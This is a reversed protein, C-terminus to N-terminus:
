RRIGGRETGPLSPPEIWMTTWLQPRFVGRRNGSRVPSPMRHYLWTDTGQANPTGRCAVTGENRRGRRQPRLADKHLRCQWFSVTKDRHALLESFIQRCHDRSPREALNGRSIGCRLRRIRHVRNSRPAVPDPSTQGPSHLDTGEFLRGFTPSVAAARFTFTCREPHRAPPPSVCLKLLPWRTQAPVSTPGPPRRGSTVLLSLRPWLCVSM